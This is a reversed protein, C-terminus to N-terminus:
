KPPPEELKGETLLNARNQNVTKDPNADEGLGSAVVRSTLSPIALIQVKMIKTVLHKRALKVCDEPDTMLHSTILMARRDLDDTDALACCYHLECFM